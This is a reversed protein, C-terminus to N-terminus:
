EKGCLGARLLAPAQPEWAGGRHVSLDGERAPKFQKDRFSGLAAPMTSSQGGGKGRAAWMPAAGLRRFTLLTARPANGVSVRGATARSRTPGLGGAEQL